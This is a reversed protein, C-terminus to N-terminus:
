VVRELDSLLDDFEAMRDDHTDDPPEPTGYAALEEPTGVLLVGDAWVDRLLSDTAGALPVVDVDDTGLRDGLQVVLDLRAWTRESADISGDFGVAVDVDSGPAAEGRAHSGYLVGVSVPAERLVGQVADLDLSRVTVESARQM